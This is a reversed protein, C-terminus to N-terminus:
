IFTGTLSANTVNLLSTAFSEDISAAFSPDDSGSRLSWLFFVAYFIMLAFIVRYTTNDYFLM